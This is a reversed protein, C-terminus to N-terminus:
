EGFIAEAQNIDNIVHVEFGLAQLEALAREQLRTLYGHKTKFEVFKVWGGEAYFLRDPKGRDGPGALKINLWGRQGAYECVRREIDKERLRQHVNRMVM